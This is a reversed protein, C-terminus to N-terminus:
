LGSSLKTPIFCGIPPKEPWKAPENNLISRLANQLDHEQAAERKKGFDVYRDDIRGRYLLKGAPSFVVAEPTRTAGSKQILQQSPDLLAPFGVDYSKAHQGAQASTLDPDAYVRYFEIQPFALRIRKLEASYSNCVPCDPLVFVFVVAMARSNTASFFAHSKGELDKLVISPADAGILGQSLISLGLITSVFILKAKPCIM